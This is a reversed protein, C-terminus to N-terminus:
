PYVDDYNGCPGAKKALGSGMILSFFMIIAKIATHQTANDVM